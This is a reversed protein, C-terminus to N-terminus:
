LSCAVFYPSQVRDTGADALLHNTSFFLITAWYRKLFIRKTLFIEINARKKIRAYQQVYLIM